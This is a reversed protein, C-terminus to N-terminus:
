LEHEWHEEIIAQIRPYNEDTENWEERVAKLQKKLDAIVDAYEPNGYEDKM